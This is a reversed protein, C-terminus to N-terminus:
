TPSITLCSGRYMNSCLPKSLNILTIFWKKKKLVPSKYVTTKTGKPTKLKTLEEEFHQKVRDLAATSQAAM